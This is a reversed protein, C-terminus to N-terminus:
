WRITQQWYNVFHQWWTAKRIRCCCKILFWRCCKCDKKEKEQGYDTNLFLYFNLLLYVEKPFNFAIDSINYATSFIHSVVILAAILLCAIGLLTGLSGALIHVENIAEQTLSSTPSPMSSPMTECHLEVNGVYTLRDRGQCFLTGSMDISRLM